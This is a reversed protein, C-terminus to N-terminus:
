SGHVSGNLITPFSACLLWQDIAISFDLQIYTALEKILPDTRSDLFSEGHSKARNEMNKVEENEM